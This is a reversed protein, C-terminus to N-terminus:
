QRARLSDFEGFLQTLHELLLRLLHDFPEVLSELLHLGVADIRILERHAVHLKVPLLDLVHPFRHLLKGLGLLVEPLVEEGLHLHREGGLLHLM